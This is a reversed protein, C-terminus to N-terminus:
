EFEFYYWFTKGWLTKMLKESETGHKNNNLQLATLFHNFRDETERSVTFDGLYPLEHKRNIYLMIAEEIHRPIYSYNMDKMKKVQYVVAKYDKELLLWALKYEFAKKNDPNSMLMLDINIADNQSIFFDKGPQLKMKEGLEPDSLIIAPKHLMKEYREAWKRYHLTKELINLYREASKYNGNIIETKVLMKLNEPRYGHIVMSEYALHHAENIFGVTYYFYLSRNIHEPGRPLLLSKEGFDQRSFFMRDCLQGKETLALNNYYQGIINKSPVKENQMILKDWNQEGFLKEIQIDKTFEPDYIIKLLLLTVSLAIFSSLQSLFLSFKENFKIFETVKVILPFLVLYGCLIIDSTCLSTLDFLPLPYRLLRGPPQLFLFREFVIFTFIAVIILIGPLLYKSTGKKYVMCYVLYIVPFVLAFSGTFYFFLPFLAPIPVNLRKTGFFISVLSYCTLLLYGLTHHISHDYRMQMLLLLCSPVLMLLVWVPKDTSLLKYIRIFIASFLLLFLSVVLSGYITSYYGQTLFNGIYELLGGPIVLFKHLYEGSFIFLSSNEQYFFLSNGFRSFYSISILFLLGLSIYLTVRAKSQGNTLVKRWLMLLTSKENM